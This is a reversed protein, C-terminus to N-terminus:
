AIEAPECCLYLAIVQRATHNFPLLKLPRDPYTADHDQIIRQYSEYHESVIRLEQRAKKSYRAFDRQLSKRRYSYGFLAIAQIIYEIGYVIFADSIWALATLAAIVVAEYLYPLRGENSYEAVKTAFFLTPTIWVVVHVLRQLVPSYKNQQAPNQQVYHNLSAVVIEFALLLLPILLAFIGANEGFRRQALHETADSILILNICYVCPIMLLVGIYLVRKTAPVNRIKSSGELFTKLNSESVEAKDQAELYLPSHKQIIQRHNSLLARINDCHEQFENISISDFM